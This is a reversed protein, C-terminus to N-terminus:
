LKEYVLADDIADTTYEVGCLWDDGTNNYHAILICGFLICVVAVLIISLLRDTKIKVTNDKIEKLEDSLAKIEDRNKM